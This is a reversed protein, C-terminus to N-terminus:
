SFENIAKTKLDMEVPMYQKLSELLLDKIKSIENQFLKQDESYMQMLVQFSFTHIAWMGPTVINNSKLISIENSNKLLLIDVAKLVQYAIKIPSGESIFKSIFNDVENGKILDPANSVLITNLTQFAEEETLIAFSYPVNVSVKVPNSNYYNEYCQLVFRFGNFYARAINILFAHLEDLDVLKSGESQVNGTKVKQQIFIATEALELYNKWEDKSYTLISVDPTYFKVDDYDLHSNDPDIGGTKLEKVYIKYPSQISIKGTGRCKACPKIGEPFDTSVDCEIYGNNCNPIDCTNQIESMRPFSFNFNVATHQSHQLLALNAFPIFSHLFSQNVRNIKKGEVFHIPPLTFNKLKLEYVDFKTADETPKISYFMNQTFVHYTTKEFRMELRQNFTARGTRSINFGNISEDYFLKSYNDVTKFDFSVKSEFESKFIVTENDRFVLLSSPIFCTQCIGSKDVFEPPYTVVFSNPDDSLATELWQQLYYDFLNKDDGYVEKKAQEITNPSAEIKYSSNSFIRNINSLGKHFSGTTIPEYALLRNAKSEPQENPFLTDIKAFLLGKSHVRIEDAYKCFLETQWDPLKAKKAFQIIGELSEFTM